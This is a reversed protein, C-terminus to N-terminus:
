ALLARSTFAFTTICLVAFGKRTLRAVAPASTTMESLVISSKLFTGFQFRLVAMMWGKLSVVGQLSRSCNSQFNNLLWSININQKNSSSCSQNGLQATTLCTWGSSIMSDFRTSCPYSWWGSFPSARSFASTLIASGQLALAHMSWNWHRGALSRYFPGSWRCHSTDLLPRPRPHVWVQRLAQRHATRAARLSGQLSLVSGNSRTSAVDIGSRTWTRKWLFFNRIWESELVMSFSSNFEAWDGGWRGHHKAFGLNGIQHKESCQPHKGNIHQDGAPHRIFIRRNSKCKPAPKLETAISISRPFWNPLVTMKDQLIFCESKLFKPFPIHPAKAVDTCFGCCCGIDAQQIGWRRHQDGQHGSIKYHALSERWIRPTSIQRQPTKHITM